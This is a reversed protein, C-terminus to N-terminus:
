KQNTEKFPLTIRNTQGDAVSYIELGGDPLETLIVYKVENSTENTQEVIPTPDDWVSVETSGQLAPWPFAAMMNKYADPLNIGLSAEITRLHLSTM